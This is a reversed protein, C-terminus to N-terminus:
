SFYYVSVRLHKQNYVQLYILVNINCKIKIVEFYLNLYSLIKVLIKTTYESTSM